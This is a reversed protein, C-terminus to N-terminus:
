GCDGVESTKSVIEWRVSKKGVIEWRSSKKGLRGGVLNKLANEWMMSLM